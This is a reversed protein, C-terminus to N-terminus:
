TEDLVTSGYLYRQEVMSWIGYWNDIFYIIVLRKEAAAAIIESIRASFIGTTKNRKSFAYTQLIDDRLITYYLIAMAHRATQFVSTSQITSDLEWIMVDRRQTGFPVNTTRRLLYVSLVWGRQFSLVAGKLIEISKNSYKCSVECWSVVAICRAALLLYYKTNILGKESESGGYPIRKTSLYGLCGLRERTPRRDRLCINWALYIGHNIIATRTNQLFFSVFPYLYFIDETKACM